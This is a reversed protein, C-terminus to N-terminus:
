RDTEELLRVQRLPPPPGTHGMRRRLTRVRIMLLHRALAALLVALPLEVMIASLLSTAIRLRGHALTVDFWADCILLTAAVLAAPVVILRRRWAAWGTVALAALEFIDFGTWAVDWHGAVYHRPLKIALFAIWVILILCAIAMGAVFGYRLREDRGSSSPHREADILEIARALGALQSDTMNRLYELAAADETM